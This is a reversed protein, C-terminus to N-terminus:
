VLSTKLNQNHSSNQSEDLPSVTSATTMRRAALFASCITDLFPRNQFEKLEEKLGKEIPSHMPSLFPRGADRAHEKRWFCRENLLAQAPVNDEKLHGRSVCRTLSPPSLGSFRAFVPSIYSAESFVSEKCITSPTSALPRM